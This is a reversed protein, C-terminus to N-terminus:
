EPSGGADKIKKITAARDFKDNKKPDMNQELLAM